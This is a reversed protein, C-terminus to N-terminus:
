GLEQVRRAHREENSFPTALWLEVAAIAEKEGVFRAALALVNANNHQRSLTLIEQAGGYYEAARVGKVRNCVIAEGTGSMGIAIGMAGRELAIGHALPLITEPYDDTPNLALPGYDKVEYGRSKLHAILKGKLEFGAHDSALFVKM